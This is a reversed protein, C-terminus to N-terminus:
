MGLVTIRFGNRVTQLPELLGLRKVEDRETAKM